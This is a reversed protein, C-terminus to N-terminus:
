ACAIPYRQVGVGRKKDEIRQALPYLGFYRKFMNPRENTMQRAKAPVTFQEEAYDVVKTSGCADLAVCLSGSSAGMDEYRTQRAYDQPQSYQEPKPTFPEDLKSESANPGSPYYNDTYGYRSYDPEYVPNHFEHSSGAPANGHDLLPKSDSESQDHDRDHHDHM